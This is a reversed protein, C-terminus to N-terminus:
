APRRSQSSKLAITSCPPVNEVLCLHMASHLLHLPDVVLLDVEQILVLMDHPLMFGLWFRLFAM